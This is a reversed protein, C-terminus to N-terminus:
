GLMPLQEGAWLWQSLFPEWVLGVIAAPGPAEGLVVQLDLSISARPLVVPLPSLTMWRIGSGGNLMNAPLAVPGWREDGSNTLTLTIPLQHGPALVGQLTAFLLHPGLRVQVAPRATLDALALYSHQPISADVVRSCVKLSSPDSSPQADGLVLKIGFTFLGSIGQTTNLSIVVLAKSGISASTDSVDVASVTLGISALSTPSVPDQNWSPTLTSANLSTSINAFTAGGTDLEVQM